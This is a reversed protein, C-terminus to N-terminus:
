AAGFVAMELAMELDGPEAEQKADLAQDEDDIEDPLESVVVGFRNSFDINALAYMIAGSKTARIEGTLLNAFRPPVPAVFHGRLLIPRNNSQRWLPLLAIAPRNAFLLGDLSILRASNTQPVAL